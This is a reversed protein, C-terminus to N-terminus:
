KGTYFDYPNLRPHYTHESYDSRIYNDCDTTCMRFGSGRGGGLCPTVTTRPPDYQPLYFKCDSCKSPVFM